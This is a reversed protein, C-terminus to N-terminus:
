FSINIYILNSYIDTYAHYKWFYFVGLSMELKMDLIIALIIL